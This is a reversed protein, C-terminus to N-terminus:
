GNENEEKIAKIVKDVYEKLDYPLYYGESSIDLDQGIMSITGYTLKSEDIIIM